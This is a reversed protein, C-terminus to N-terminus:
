IPIGEETTWCLRRLRAAIRPAATFLTEVAVIRGPPDGMIPCVVVIQGLDPNSSVLECFRNEVAARADAMSGVVVAQVDASQIHRLQTSAQEGAEVIYFEFQM